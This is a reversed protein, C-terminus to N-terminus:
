PSWSRQWAFYQTQTQFSIISDNPEPVSDPCNTYFWEEIENKYNDWWTQDTILVFYPGKQTYNNFAVWRTNENNNM